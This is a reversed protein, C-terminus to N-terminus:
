KLSVRSERAEPFPFLIGMSEFELTLRVTNGTPNGLPWRVCAWLNDAVPVNISDGENQELLGPPIQFFLNKNENRSTRIDQILQNRWLPRCTSWVLTMRISADDEGTVIRKRHGRYRLITVNEDSEITSARSPPYWDASLLVYKNDETFASTAM